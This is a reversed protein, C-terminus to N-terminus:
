QSQRADFFGNSGTAHKQPQAASVVIAKRRTCIKRCAQAGLWGRELAGYMAIRRLLLYLLGACGPGTDLCRRTTGERAVIAVSGGLPGWERRYRSYRGVHYPLRRRLPRRRSSHSRRLSSRKSHETKRRGGIGARRGAATPGRWRELTVECWVQLRASSNIDFADKSWGAGQDRACLGWNRCSGRKYRRQMCSRSFVYFVAACILGVGRAGVRSFLTERSFSAARLICCPIEGTSFPLAPELYLSLSVFLLQPSVCLLPFLLLSPPPSPLLPKQLSLPRSAAPLFLTLSLLERRRCCRLSATGGGVFDGRQEEM